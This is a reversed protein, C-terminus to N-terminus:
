SAVAVVAWLVYSARRAPRHRALPWPPGGRRRAPCRRGAPEAAAGTPRRRQGARPLRRVGRQRVATGHHLGDPLRSSRRCLCARGMARRDVLRAQLGPDDQASEPDQGTFTGSAWPQVVQGQLLQAAGSGAPTIMQTPNLVIETGADSRALAISGGLTFWTNAKDGSADLVLIHTIGLEPARQLAEVLGLNDYHGGDTVCMWTSRYSTHGAAEAYLMGLTPQLAHYLLGGLYQQSPTGECRLKLVYAWLRAEKLERAQDGRRWTPHPVMYWLLLGLAHWWRDPRHDPKAANKQDDLEQRAAKVVAPHPLWVGLRLDTATFLIRYAQLTASGM